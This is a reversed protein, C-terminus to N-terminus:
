GGGRRRARREFTEFVRQKAPPTGPKSFVSNRLRHAPNRFCAAECPAHPDAFAGDCPGSCRAGCAAAPSCASALSGGAGHGKDDTEMAEDAAAERGQAAASEGTAAAPWPAQALSGPAMLQPASDDVPEAAPDAPAEVGEGATGEPAPAAGAALEAGDAAAPAGPARPRACMRIKPARRERFAPPGDPPLVAAHGGRAAGGYPRASLRVDAAAALAEDPPAAGATTSSTAAAAPAPAAAAAASDLLQIRGSRDAVLLLAHAAGRGWGLGPGDSLGRSTGALTWAEVHDGGVVGGNQETASSRRWFFLNGNWDLAALADGDRRMAVARVAGMGAPALRQVAQWRVRGGGAVAGSRSGGCKADGDDPVGGGDQRAGEDAPAARWVQIAAGLASACEGAGAYSVACRGSVAMGRAGLPRLSESSILEAGAWSSTPPLVVEVDDAAAPETTFKTSQLGPDHSSSTEMPDSSTLAATKAEDRASVGGTQHLLRWVQSTCRM